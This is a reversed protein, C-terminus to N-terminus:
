GWRRWSLILCVLGIVMLAVGLYGAASMPQETPGWRDITGILAGIAAVWASANMRKRRSNLFSPFHM